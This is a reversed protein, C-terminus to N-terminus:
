SPAPHKAASPSNRPEADFPPESQIPHFASSNTQNVEDEDEDEDEVKKMPKEEVMM